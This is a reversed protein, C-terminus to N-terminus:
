VLRFIFKNRTSPRTAITPAPDATGADAVEIRIVPSVDNVTSQSFVCVLGSREPEAVNVIVSQLLLPKVRSTLSMVFEVDVRGSMSARSVLKPNPKVGLAVPKVLTM